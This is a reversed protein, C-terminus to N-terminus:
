ILAHRIAKEHAVPVGLDAAGKVHDKAGLPVPDGPCRRALAFACASRQTRLAHPSLTDVPQQDEVATMELAHQPGVDLVVVPVARMSRQPLAWRKRPRSAGGCRSAGRLM